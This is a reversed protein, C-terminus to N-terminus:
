TGTNPLSIPTLSVILAGLRTGLVTLGLQRDQQQRDAGALARGLVSQCSEPLAEGGAVGTGYSVEELIRSMTAMFRTESRRLGGWMADGDM